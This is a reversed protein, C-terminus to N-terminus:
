LHPVLTVWHLSQYTDPSLARLSLLPLVLLIMRCILYVPLLVVLMAAFINTPIQVYLLVLLVFIIPLGTIAVSAFRWLFQEANSPFTFEWAICHIAGFVVASITGSLVIVTESNLSWTEPYFTAIRKEEDIVHPSGAAIAVFLTIPVFILQWTPKDSAAFHRLVKIPLTILAKALHGFRTWLSITPELVRILNESASEVVHDDGSRELEDSDANSKKYVRVGRRVGLPKHRWLLFLAFSIVAFAITVLELEAISLGQEHRAICQLVFWGTQLVVLGKSIIDGKSKDKIEEGTIRPFDGKGTLSYGELQDPLLTQVARDGDFAMFGGM